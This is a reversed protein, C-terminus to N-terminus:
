VSAEFWFGVRSLDFSHWFPFVIRSPGKKESAAAQELGGHSASQLRAPAKSESGRGPLKHGACQVCEAFLTEAITSSLTLNRSGKVKVAKFSEAGRLDM